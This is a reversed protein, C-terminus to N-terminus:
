IQIGINLLATYGSSANGTLPALENTVGDSFGDDSANNTSTNQGHASDTGCGSTSASCM